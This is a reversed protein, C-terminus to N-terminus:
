NSVLQSKGIGDHLLQLSKIIKEELTLKKNQIPLKSTVNNSETKSVKNIIVKPKLYQM